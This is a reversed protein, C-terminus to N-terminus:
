RSGDIIHKGSLQGSLNAIRSDISQMHLDQQDMRVKAESNAKEFQDATVTHLGFITFSLANGLIFAVTVWFAKQYFGNLAM